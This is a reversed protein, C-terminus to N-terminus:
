KLIERLHAEWRGGNGAMLVEYSPIEYV